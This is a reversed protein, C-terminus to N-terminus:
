EAQWELASRGRGQQNFANKVQRDAECGPPAGDDVEHAQGM